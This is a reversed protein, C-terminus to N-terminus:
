IECTNLDNKENAHEEQEMLWKQMDTSLGYRKVYKLWMPKEELAEKYRAFYKESLEMRGAGAYAVATCYQSIAHLKYRDAQKRFLEAATEYNGAKLNWNNIYNVDIKMDYRLDMMEKHFGEEPEIIEYQVGGREVTKLINKKKCIEYLRSGKYPQVVNIICWDFKGAKMFSRTFERDEKTEGPMGIMFFADVQIHNRHLLDVCRGVEDLGLPKQMLHELVYPSGSEVAIVVTDAGAMKLLEANKENIHRVNLGSAFEIKLHLGSLEKLIEDARKELFLFQDDDISIKKIGFKQKLEFLDQIVRASSMYRIKKGHNASACCFVCNYPCGRTTHIPLSIEYRGDEGTIRSGYKKIDVKEYRILPIDDLDTVPLAAPKKRNLLDEKTIWSPHRSFFDKDDFNETLELFPIEGEGYCVADIYPAAKMINGPMNSAYIGGTVIRSIDTHSRIWGSLAAVSTEVNGFMVSVAALDYKKKRVQKELLEWEEGVTNCLNLDIVDCHLYDCKSEIYTIISLVGYPICKRQKSRDEPSSCYNPVIFLYCKQDTKRM